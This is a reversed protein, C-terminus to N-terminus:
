RNIPTDNPVTQPVLRMGVWERRKMQTELSLHPCCYIHQLLYTLVVLGRVHSILEYTLDYLLTSCYRRKKNSATILVVDLAMRASWAAM